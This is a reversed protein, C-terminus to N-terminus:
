PNVGRRRWLRRLSFTLGPLSAPQFVEDDRVSQRISYFGDRLVLRELTREQPDVLWYEPIGMEAYAQLKTIRDHGAHSPSLVEVALDPRGSELGQPPCEAPNDALYLQVDPMFGRNRRSMIKYGSALVEAGHEEAWIVLVASLVAVAREHADTPVEGEVLEGDVLERRDDEPLALFDEWTYAGPALAPRSMHDLYGALLLRDLRRRPRRGVARGTSHEGSLERAAASGSPCHTRSVLPRASGSFRFCPLGNVQKVKEPRRDEDPLAIFDEWGPLAEPQPQAESM